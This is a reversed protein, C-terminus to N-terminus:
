RNFTVLLALLGFDTLDQVKCSLIEDNAVNGKMEPIIEWCFTKVYEHIWVFVCVCVNASLRLM